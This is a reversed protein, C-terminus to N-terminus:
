CTEHFQVAEVAASRRSCGSLARSVQKVEGCYQLSEMALLPCPRMELDIDIRFLSTASVGTDARCKM